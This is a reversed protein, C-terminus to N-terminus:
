PELRSCAASQGIYRPTLATMAFDISEVIGLGIVRQLSAVPQFQDIQASRNFAVPLHRHLAGVSRREGCGGREGIALLMQQDATSQESGELLM